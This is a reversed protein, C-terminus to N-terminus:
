DRLLRDVEGAFYDANVGQFWTSHGCVRHTYDHNRARPDKGQYGVAGENGWRHGILWRSISVARDNRSHFVDLRSVNPHIPAQNDRAGSISVFRWSKDPFYEAALEVAKQAYNRGNSHTVVVDADVLAAAIRNIADRHLIRFRVKVLDHWGYDAQDTDVQHGRRLLGNALRDITAAGGDRVNFGHVLVVRAM